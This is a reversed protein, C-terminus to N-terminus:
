TEKKIFKRYGVYLIMGLGALIIIWRIILVTRAPLPTPTFNKGTLAVEIMRDLDAPNAPLAYMIGDQTDKFASDGILTGPMSLEDPSFQKASIKKTSVEILTYEEKFLVESSPNREGVGIVDYAYYFVVVSYPLTMKRGPINKYNSNEIRRLLKGDLSKVEMQKISYDNEPLLWISFLRESSNWDIRVRVEIFLTEQNNLVVNRVQLMEGKEAFYLVSSVPRTGIESGWFPLKIGAYGLFYQACIPRNVFDTRVKTLPWKSLIPPNKGSRAGVYYNKGDFSNELISTL